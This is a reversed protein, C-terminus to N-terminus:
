LKWSGVKWGIIDRQGEGGCMSWVINGHVMIVGELEGGGKEM